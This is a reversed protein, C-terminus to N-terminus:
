KYVEADVWGSPTHFGWRREWPGALVLTWSPKVIEIRHIDVAKRRVFTGVTAKFKTQRYPAARPHFAYRYEIWRGWLMLSWFGWPHDHPYRDQDSKTTHHLFLRYKWRRPSLFFRRMQPMDKHPCHDYVWSLVFRGFSLVFVLCWLVLVTKM